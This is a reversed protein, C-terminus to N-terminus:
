IVSIGKKRYFIFVILLILYEFSILYGNQEYPIITYTIYTLFILFSWIIGYQLPILVGLAVIPTIYWPHISMAFLLYIFLLLSMRKILTEVNEKLPKFSFFLILLFCTMGMLKGIVSINSNGTIWKSIFRALNSLSSNFEFVNFYLGISEGIHHIFTGDIFPIFTLIFVIMSIFAFRIGNKLGIFRIIVPIFILPLLKFSITLGFCIAAITYRKELLLWLSIFLGLIVFVEGHLNGAFELIILPNLFYIFILEKPKELRELLRIMVPVLALEALLILVKYIIIASALGKETFFTALYYSFQAMPPYVSFYNKSNMGEYLASINKSSAFREAIDSPLHTYPNMGQHIIEGDWFFRYFDDSLTPTAFLLLLRFLFASMLLYKFFQKDIPKSLMYFYGAFLMTYVFLMTFFDTRPIFYGLAIYAIISLLIIGLISNRHEIKM